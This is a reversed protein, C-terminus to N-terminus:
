GQGRPRCSIIRTPSVALSFYTDNVDVAVCARVGLILGARKRRLGKCREGLGVVAVELVMVM